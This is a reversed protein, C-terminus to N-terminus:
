ETAVSPATTLHRFLQWPTLVADARIGLVRKVTEVCTLPRLLGVRRPARVVHTAVVSHGRGEFHEVIRETPLDDIAILDLQHALPDCVIWCRPGRVLVFCHRFGRRLVRLPRLDTEDVFVVVAERRETAEEVRAAESTM